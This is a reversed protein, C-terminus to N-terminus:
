EEFLNKLKEKNIIGKLSSVYNTDQAYRDELRQYYEDENSCFNSMASCQYLLYDYFSLDWSSYVAFGKNESVATTPRQRALRMGFMNNNEKFITSTFNGSEIKAQALIIHPYKVNSKRLLDILKTESFKDKIYVTDVINTQNTINQNFIREEGLIYGLGISLFLLLIISIIVNKWTIPKYNLSSNNYKYLKM